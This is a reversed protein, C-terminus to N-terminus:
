FDDLNLIYKASLFEKIMVEAQYYPKEAESLNFHNPQKCIDFRIRKLDDLGNGQSHENKTANMDSFLTNKFTVVSPDIELLVPNQIRGEKVAVHRMPHNPCFSLRVYNQLGFRSDLMRSLQGGGPMPIDMKSRLLYDWSYLGGAKKIAPINSRDTFHYLKSIKNDLLLNIYDEKGAKYQLTKPPAVILPKAKPAKPPYVKISVPKHRTVFDSATKDYAIVQLSLDDEIIKNDSRLRNVFDSISGNKVANSWDNLLDNFTAYGYAGRNNFLLKALAKDSQMIASLKEWYEDDKSKVILYSLALHEAMADSALIIKTDANLAQEKGSLLYKEQLDDEKWNLLGKNNLFGLLNKGYSPVFLEDNKQNYILVTSNGYSLWRYFLKDNEQRFWCATYTAFSGQKEFANQLFVDKIGARTEEYFEQWVTDLFLRLGKISELPSFGTKQCLFDAWKDSLIGKSKSGDSIVCLGRDKEFKLVSADYNESDDASQLNIPITIHNM